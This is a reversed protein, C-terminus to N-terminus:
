ARPRCLQSITDSRSAFASCCRRSAEKEIFLIAGYNGEPGSTEVSSAALAAQTVSPRHRQTLYERVNVTGVGFGADTHPEDFHGRDDFTVDWDVGHEAIYNPLLWQTFYKDDLPKGTMEQIQPRAAYMIQRANAPLSGGASAKLWAEEMVEYAADKFSVDRSRLMKAERREAEAAHKEEQQRVRCWKKTVTVVAKAIAEGTAHDLVLQSKGRDTFAMVPCTLHVLVIIPEESGARQSTLVEDLSVGYPSLSRFPNALTPSFNLGTILRRQAREPWWAFAVELVFPLGTRTEGIQRVYEFSEMEAGTVAFHAAIHDRGIIGLDPAKVPKTCEQLAGLLRRVADPNRGEAYLDSLSM